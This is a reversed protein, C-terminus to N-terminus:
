PTVTATFSGNTVNVVANGSADESVGSFTGTAIHTTNDYATINVTVNTGNTTAPLAEYIPVGNGTIIDFDIFAFLSANAPPMSQTTYSGPVVAGTPLYLYLNIATDISANNFGELYLMQGGTGWIASDKIIVATDFTGQFTGDATTFQWQGNTDGGTGTTDQAGGLGTGTSDQINVSFSCVSSDFSINFNATTPIIPTGIPKLRVTNIGTNGFFGSDAFVFGDQQDSTINYSGTQTVNVQIEVYATDSGPTVGGYFTGHVSDPLCTGTSDWLSGTAVLTSNTEVSVEKQCSFVVSICCVLFLYSFIKTM